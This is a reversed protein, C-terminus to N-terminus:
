GDTMERQQLKQAAAEIRAAAMEYYDKEKEIGIWRMGEAIAALATTGSGMFPDLVTGGPPTIFKVWWQLLLKPTAAGHGAAGGSSISNSNPVPFCNFPTVGGNKEAAGTIKAVNKSAGSPYYRRTNLKNSIRQQANSASEHWLVDHQNQYADPAGFWVLLKVSGRMNKGRTTVGNPLTSTNWWYADQIWNWNNAWYIVWNWLWLRVSLGKGDNADYNPQLVFMASGNPKLVRRCHIVVADMLERWEWEKLCGYKRKIMAYPPDTVVADVSNDPMTQLVELCDGHYLRGGPLDRYNM